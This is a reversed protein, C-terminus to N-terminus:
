TGNTSKVEASFHFSGLVTPHTVEACCEPCNTM